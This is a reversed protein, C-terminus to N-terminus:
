AEVGYERYREVMRAITENKVAADLRRKIHADRLQQDTETVVDDDDGALYDSM